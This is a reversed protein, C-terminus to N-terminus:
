VSAHRSTPVCRTRDPWRRRHIERGTAPCCPATCRAARAQARAGAARRREVIRRPRHAANTAARGAAANAGANGVVPRPKAVADGVVEFDGAIPADEILRTGSERRGPRQAGIFGVIEKLRRRRVLAADRNSCQARARSASGRPRRVRGAASRCRRSSRRCSGPRRRLARAFADPESPEQVDRQRLERRKGLRAAFGARPALQRAWAAASRVASSRRRSPRLSTDARSNRRRCAAQSPPRGGLAANIRDGLGPGHERARGIRLARPAGHRRTSRLETRRSAARTSSNVGGNSSRM